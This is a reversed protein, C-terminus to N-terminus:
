ERTRQSHANAPNYRLNEGRWHTRQFLEERQHSHHHLAGHAAHVARTAGVHGDRSLLLARSFLGAFTNSM